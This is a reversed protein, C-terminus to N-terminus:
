CVLKLFQFFSKKGEVAVRTQIKKKDVEVSYDAEDSLVAKNITLTHTTDTSTIHYHTDDLAIAVGDKYWTVPKDRSLTVTLTVEEDERVKLDDPLTIDFNADPETM